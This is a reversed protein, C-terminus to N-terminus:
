RTALQADGGLCVCTKNADARTPRYATRLATVNSRSTLRRSASGKLEAVRWGNLLALSVDSKM